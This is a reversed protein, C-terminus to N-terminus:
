FLGFSLYHISRWVKYGLKSALYASIGVVLIGYMAFAGLATWLPNYSVAFPVLMQALGIRLYSDFAL